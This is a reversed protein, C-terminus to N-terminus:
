SGFVPQKGMSHFLTSFVDPHKQLASSLTSGGEVDRRVQILTEKLKADETQESLIDLCRVMALGANIMTAFQRSFVTLAQEDVKKFSKFWAMIDGQAGGGAQESIKIITMKMDQQIIKQAARSNPAEITDKKVQGEQDRAEYAFVPM